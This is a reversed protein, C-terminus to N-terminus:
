DYEEDYRNADFDREPTLPRWADIVVECDTQCNEARSSVDSRTPLRHVSLPDQSTEADDDSHGDSKDFGYLGFEFDSEKEEDSGDLFRALAELNFRLKKKVADNGAVGPRSKRPVRIEEVVPEPEDQDWGLAQRLIEVDGESRLFGELEGEAFLEDDAIETEGSGGRDVTLRQLRTPAHKTILNPLPATLIYSMVPLPHNSSSSPLASAATSPLTCSHQRIPTHSSPPISGSLPDLLFHTADLLSHHTKQRKRPLPRTDQIVSVPLNTASDNKEDEDDGDLVPNPPVADRWIEDQFNIVDKLGRAVVLRRSVKARRSKREYKDLWPVKEIWSAVEDQIAKYRTMVVGKGVHCRAGLCQALGGLPSITERLEAELSLMFIACATPAPPLRKLDDNPCLRAVLSCLSNATTTVTRLCIPQLLKVLSDPLGSDKQNDRLVSALHWQLTSIHVSPDIVTSTFNLLSTISIYTRTLSTPSTKLMFAIDHLSNPRNAERLAISLCAGATLRTKRGWRFQGATKAQNFLTLARPSLAAANMSVALSNIFEAIAYSNKRGRAEAEQGSLDWQGGNRRSVKLTTSTAPDWLPNSHFFESRYDQSTLISQSPDTLTGCTTCIASAAEDDWITDGRCESCNVAM